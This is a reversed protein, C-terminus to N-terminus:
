VKNFSIYIYFVPEFIRITKNKMNIIDKIKDIKNIKSM